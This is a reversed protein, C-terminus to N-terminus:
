QVEGEVTCCPLAGIKSSIKCTSHSFCDVAHFAFAVYVLYKEIEAQRPPIFFSRIVYMNDIDHTKRKWIVSVVPNAVGSIGQFTHCSSTCKRIYISSCSTSVYLNAFEKLIQKLYPFALAIFM